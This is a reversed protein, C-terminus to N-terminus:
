VKSLKNTPSIPHLITCLSKHTCPVRISKDYRLRRKIKIFTEWKGRVFIRWFLFGALRRQARLSRGNTLNSSSVFETLDVRVVMSWSWPGRGHVVVGGARGSVDSVCARVAKGGGRRPRSLQVRRSRFRVPNPPFFSQHSCVLFHPETFPCSDPRNLLSANPPIQDLVYPRRPLFQNLVPSIRTVSRKHDILSSNQRRLELHHPPIRNNLPPAFAPM